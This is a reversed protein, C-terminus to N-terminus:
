ETLGAYAQGVLGAAYAMSFDEPDWDDAASSFRWRVYTGIEDGEPDPARVDVLVMAARIEVEPDDGYDDALTEMLAAALLGLRNPDLPM